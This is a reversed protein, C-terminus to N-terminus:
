THDTSQSQCKVWNCGKRFASKSTKCQIWSAQTNLAASHSTANRIQRVDSTYLPALLEFPKAPYIQGVNSRPPPASTSSRTVAPRLLRGGRRRRRLWPRVQCTEPTGRGGHCRVTQASADISRLQRLCASAATSYLRGPQVGERCERVAATACAHTEPRTKPASTPTALQLAIVHGHAILHPCRPDCSRAASHPSAMSARCMGAGTGSDSRPPSGSARRTAAACCSACAWM